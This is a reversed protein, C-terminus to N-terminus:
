YGFSLHFSPLLSPSPLCAPLHIVSLVMSRLCSAPPVVHPCLGGLLAAEVPSCPLLVDCIHALWGPGGEIGACRWCSGSLVPWPALWCPVLFRHCGQATCYSPTATLFSVVVRRAEEEQSVPGQCPGWLWAWCVCERSIGGM